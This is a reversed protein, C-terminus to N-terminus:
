LVTCAGQILVGALRTHATPDFNKMHVHLSSPMQISQCNKHRLNEQM